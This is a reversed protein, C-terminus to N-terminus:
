MRVAAWPEVTITSGFNSSYEIHLATRLLRLGRLLGIVLLRTLLILLSALLAALLATSLATLSTLLAALPILPASRRTEIMRELRYV